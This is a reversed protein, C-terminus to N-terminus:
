TGAGSQAGGSRFAAYVSLVAGTVAFVFYFVAFFQLLLILFLLGFVAKSFMTIRKLAFSLAAGGGTYALGPSTILMINLMAVYMVTDTVGSATCIVCAAASVAFLIACFPSVTMRGMVPFLYGSGPRRYIFCLSATVIFAVALSFLVIVAPLVSYVANKLEALQQDSYYSVVTGDTGTYQMAAGISDVIGDTEGIIVSSIGSLSLEYGGVAMATLLVASNGFLYAAAGACVTGSKGAGKLVALATAAATLAYVVATIASFPSGTFLWGLFYSAVPVIIVFPSRAGIFLYAAIVAAAVTAISFGQTSLAGLLAAAAGLLLATKLPLRAPLVGATKAPRIVTENKKGNNM